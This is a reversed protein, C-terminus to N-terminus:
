IKSSKQNKYLINKVELGSCLKPGQFPLTYIWSFLFRADRSLLLIKAVTQSHSAIEKILNFKSEWKSKESMIYIYVKRSLRQSKFLCQLQANSSSDTLTAAM